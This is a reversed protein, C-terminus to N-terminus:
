TVDHTVPTLTTSPEHGLRFLPSVDLKVTASTSFSNENAVLHLLEQVVGAHFFGAEM